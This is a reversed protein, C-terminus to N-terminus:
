VHQQYQHIEVQTFVHILRRSTNQQLTTAVGHQDGLGQTEALESAVTKGDRAVNEESLPVFRLYGRHPLVGLSEEMYKIVNTYVEAMVVAESRIRDKTSSVERGAQFADEFYRSRSQALTPQSKVKTSEKTPDFPLPRSVSRSSLRHGGDMLSQLSTAQEERQAEKRKAFSLQAANSPRRTQAVPSPLSKSNGVTLSSSM